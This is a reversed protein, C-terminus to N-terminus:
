HITGTFALEWGEGILSTFPQNFHVGSSARWLWQNGNLDRKLITPLAPLQMSYEQTNTNLYQGWNIALQTNNTQVTIIAVPSVPKEYSYFTPFGQALFSITLARLGIKEHLHQPIYFPLVDSTSLPRRSRESILMFPVPICLSEQEQTKRKVIYPQLSTEPLMEALCMANLLLEM